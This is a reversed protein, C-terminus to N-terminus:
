SPLRHLRRVPLSLLLIKWTRQFRRSFTRQHRSRIYLRRGVVHLHISTGCTCQMASVGEQSTSRVQDGAAAASGEWLEGAIRELEPPLSFPTGTSVTETLEDQSSPYTLLPLMHPKVSDELLM